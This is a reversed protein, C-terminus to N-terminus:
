SHGGSPPICTTEVHSGLIMPRWLHTLSSSSQTTLRDRLSKSALDAVTVHQDVQFVNHGFCVDVM